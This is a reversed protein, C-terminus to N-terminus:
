TNTKTITLFMTDTRMKIKVKISIISPCVSRPLPFRLVWLFGGVQRLDSVLMIVYQQISYVEEHASNSNVVNYHYASIAYTTTIIVVMRDLGLHCRSYLSWSHFTIRWLLLKGQIHTNNVIWRCQLYEDFSSILIIAFIVLSIKIRNHQWNM